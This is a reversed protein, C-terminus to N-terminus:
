TTASVTEFIQLTELRDIQFYCFRSTWWISRTHATNVRVPEHMLSQSNVLNELDVTFNKNREAAPVIVCFIQEIM